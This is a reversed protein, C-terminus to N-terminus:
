SEHIKKRLQDFSHKNAKKTEEIFDEERKKLFQKFEAEASEKIKLQEQHKELEHINKFQHYISDITRFSIVKLLQKYIWKM